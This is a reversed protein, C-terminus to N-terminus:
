QLRNEEESAVALAMSGAIIATGALTCSVGPITAGLTDSVYGMILPALIYTGDGVARPMGLATAECGTPANEQALATLAPGQASAGMSWLLVLVAFVVADPSQEDTFSDMSLGIPILALSAGSWLGALIAAVRPGLRDSLWGGIPAGVLGALGAASLLFGAGTPGGLYQNALIPVIAIKCAYGFSVGSQAMALSRWTSTALLQKWDAADVADKESTLYSKKHTIDKGEDRTEDDDDSTVKTEPLISYITLAVVAAASVCLFASRSGYAEVVLGGLPAGLSIGLAVCAQQLALARGRLTPIRNAFDTLMGREGAEAYGRGLGVGFRALVLTLVSNSCATGVDAFAIFAMGGMMAIKRGSTDAFDGALRSVFLLAMAPASIVVGNFTSSLGISQGYMPLVPIVAGVGLFLIFQSLLLWSFSELVSPPLTSETTGYAGGEGSGDMNADQTTSSIGSIEMEPLAETQTTSRVSSNFILEFRQQKISKTGVSTELRLEDILEEDDMSSALPRRSSNYNYEPYCRSIHSSSLTQSRGFNLHSHRRQYHWRRVLTKRQQVNNSAHFCEPWSAVVASMSWASLAFLIPVGVNRSRINRRSGPAIIALIQSSGGLYEEWTDLVFDRRHSNKKAAM